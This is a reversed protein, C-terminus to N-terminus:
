GPSQGETVVPQNNRKYRRSLNLTRPEPPVAVVNRRSLRSARERSIAQANIESAASVPTVERPQVEQTVMQPKSPAPAAPRPTPKAPEQTPKIEAQRTEQIRQPEVLAVDWKFAEKPVVPKVQAMLGLAVTLALGHVFASVVWGQLRYQGDPTLTM